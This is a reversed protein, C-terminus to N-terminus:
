TRIERRQFIMAGARTRLPRDGSETSCWPLEYETDSAINEDIAFRPADDNGIKAAERREGIAEGVRLDACAVQGVEEEARHIGPEIGVSRHRCGKVAGEGLDADPQASLFVRISDHSPTPALQRKKQRIVVCLCRWCQFRPKCYGTVKLNDRVILPQNSPWIGNQCM